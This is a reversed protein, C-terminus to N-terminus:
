AVEQEDGEPLEYYGPGDYSVSRLGQEGTDRRQAWTDTVKRAGCHMCCEHIVVGGGHGWVGPNEEIGGVVDHPSQWDHEGAPCRPEPPDIAATVTEIRDGDDDEVYVDVWVTGNSLDWDGEAAWEEAQERMDDLSDAEITQTIGSDGDRLTYTAM